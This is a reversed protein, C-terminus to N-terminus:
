NLAIEMKINSRKYQTSLMPVETFGFKTYLHIAPQLLTNSYLVVKKAGLARARELSHELLAHGIKKGQHAEAVAMKSLEFFDDAIKQLAFTGVVENDILAFFIHGGKNLIYAQPNSFMAEDAPEVSFYKNLWALNLSKFSEEFQPQYPLIQLRQANM